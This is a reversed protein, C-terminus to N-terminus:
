SIKIVKNIKKEDESKPLSIELVGNKFTASIKDSNVNEPVRFSRCFSYSGFEKRTYGNNEEKREEAMESSIMLTDKEFEIKVDSREMGPLAMEITYLKEGERINVAPLDRRMGHLSDFDNDFFNSMFLPSYGRKTITPLMIKGEM